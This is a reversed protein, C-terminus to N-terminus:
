SMLFKNFLRKLIDHSIPKLLTCFCPLKLSNEGWKKTIEILPITSSFIIKKLFSKVLASFGEGFNPQELGPSKKPHINKWNSLLSHKQTKFDGFKSFLIYKKFAL